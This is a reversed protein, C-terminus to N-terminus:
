TGPMAGPVPTSRPCSPVPEQEEPTASCMLQPHPPVPAPLWRTIPIIWLNYLLDSLSVFWPLSLVSCLLVPATDKHPVHSCHHIPHEPYTPWASSVLWSLWLKKLGGDLLSNVWYSRKKVKLTYDQYGHTRIQPNLWIRIFINKLYYDMKVIYLYVKNMIRSERLLNCYLLITIYYKWQM